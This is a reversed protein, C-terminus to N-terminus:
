FSRYGGEIGKVSYSVADHAHLSENHEVCVWYDIFEARSDLVSTLRRAADECFMLNQGNLVAFAQEDERKVATQVPTKLANEILAILDIFNFYETLVKKEPFALKVKVTAYSRQSHPTAYTGNAEMLWAVVTEVPVSTQDAFDASFKQQIKQRALAASCPCTSSYPVSVSMEILTPTPSDAHCELAITAPYGKWGQYHSILAPQNLLYDFRYQIRAKTSIGQHSELVTRLFDALSPISVRQEKAYDVLLLYLRSMHIGRASPNILNVFIQSKTDIAQTGDSTELGIPLAITDMGVWELASSGDTLAEQAIDPLQSQTPVTNEM